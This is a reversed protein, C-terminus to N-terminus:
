FVVTETEWYNKLYINFIICKVPITDAIIKKYICQTSYINCVKIHIHTHIYIYILQKIEPNCKNRTANRGPQM